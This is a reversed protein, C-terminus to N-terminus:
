EHANDGNSSAITRALARLDNDELHAYYASTTKISAHGLAKRLHELSAGARLAQTAYTHRLTHASCRQEIRARTAHRKLMAHLYARSLPDGPTSPALAFPGRPKAAHIVCFLTNPPRPLAARDQQWRALAGALRPTVWARRPKGSKSSRIDLAVIQGAELHLDNTTLALAEGSRLGCDLMTLVLARNRRGTPSNPRFTHLLNDTDTRSLADQSRLQPKRM